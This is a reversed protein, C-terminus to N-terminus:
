FISDVYNKSKQFELKWWKMVDQRRTILIEKNSLFLEVEKVADDWTEQFIWPPSGIPKTAEKYEEASCGAVIPIAGCISAEFNRFCLINVNGAPCVVFKSNKYIERMESPHASGVYNPEIREFKQLVEGRKGKIGGIFSWAYERDIFKSNEILINDMTTNEEFMGEMYGLPITKINDYNPYSNFHHQRLVLPYKRLFKYWSADKGWEDSLHFILQPNGLKLGRRIESKSFQNRSYVVIHCHSMSSPHEVWSYEVELHSLIDKVFDVEWAVLDYVSAPVRKTRFTEAESFPNREAIWTLKLPYNLKCARRRKGKNVKSKISSLIKFIFSKKM